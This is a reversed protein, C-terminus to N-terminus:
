EQMTMADFFRRRMDLLYEEAGRPHDPDAPLPSDDLAEELMAHLRVMLKIWRAKHELTPRQQERNKVILREIEPLRYREILRPLDLEVEGTRLLHVGTLATRYASLVHSVSPREGEEYDRVVGKCFSRYYVHFRRCIVGRAARQLRRVDHDELLQRPALIRELTSGDGKILCRLAHGLEHASYDIRRGEFEGIWNFSRPQDALGVLEEIADVHIGKLEFPSDANPYGYAHAGTIAVLLLKKGGTQQRICRRLVADPIMKTISKM